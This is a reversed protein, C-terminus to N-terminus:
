ACRRYESRKAPMDAWRVLRDGDIQVKEGLGDARRFIFTGDSDKGLLSWRDERYTFGDEALVVRETMYRNGADCDAASAAFTGPTFDAEERATEPADPVRMPDAIETGDDNQVVQGCAALGLAAAFLFHRM